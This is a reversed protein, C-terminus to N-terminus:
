THTSASRSSLAVPLQMTPLPTQLLGECHMASVALDHPLEGTCREMCHPGKPGHRSAVSQVAPIRQRSRQPSPTLSHTGAVPLQSVLASQGIRWTHATGYLPVSSRHTVPM